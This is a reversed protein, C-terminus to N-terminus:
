VMVEEYHSIREEDCVNNLCYFYELDTLMNIADCLRDPDCIDVVIAPYEEAHLKGLFVDHEMHNVIDDGFFEKMMAFVTEGDCCDTVDSGIQGYLRGNIERVFWFTDDNMPTWLTMVIQSGDLSISVAVIESEGDKEIIAFDESQWKTRVTM